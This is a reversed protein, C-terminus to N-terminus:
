VPVEACVVILEPPALGVPLTPVVLLVGRFLLEEVLVVMPGIPPPVVFLGAIPLELVILLWLPDMATICPDPACIFEPLM